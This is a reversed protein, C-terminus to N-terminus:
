SAATGAHEEEVAPLTKELKQELQELEERMEALAKRLEKKADKARIRLVPNATIPHDSIGSAFSAGKGELVKSAIWNTLGEDEGELKLEIYEKEKSLVKVNM